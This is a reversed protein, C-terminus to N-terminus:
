VPSNNGSVPQPIEEESPSDDAIMCAVDKKKRSSEPLVFEGAKAKEIDAWFDDLKPKLSAFWAVDRYVRVHHIKECKWTNTELVCENLGLDPKWDMDGVPGYLYKCPLWEREKENFCGVVVILGYWGSAPKIFGDLNDVFDFKAEVYECARVGTVELQLQMQFFYEMPVKLGITRSKPCKIELLHGGMDPKELSRIILGDPSAALRKDVLHVFRGVDHIIAKWHNELLLKVVPEFCIGWDFPNMNSRLVALNTGRGSMELKGAKQMVLTGRERPSGFVKYLESATLCRKFETYWDATRQTTQPRNMLAYTKEHEVASVFDDDEWESYAELLGTAISNVLDDENDQISDIYERMSSRWQKSLDVHTPKPVCESWDELCQSLHDLSIMVHEPIKKTKMKVPVLENPESTEKNSEM